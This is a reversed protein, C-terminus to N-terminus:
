RGYGKYLIKNNFGIASHTIFLCNILWLCCLLKYILQTFVHITLQQKILDLLTPNSMTLDLILVGVQKGCIKTSIVTIRSIRETVSEICSICGNFQWFWRKHRILALYERIGTWSIIPIPLLFTNVIRCLMSTM